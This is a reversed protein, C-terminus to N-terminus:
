LQQSHWEKNNLTSNCLFVGRFKVTLWMISTVDWIVRKLNLLKNIWRKYLLSMLDSLGGVVVDSGPSEWITWGRSKQLLTEAQISSQWCLVFRPPCGRHIDDFLTDHNLLSSQIICGYKIISITWYKLTFLYSLNAKKILYKMMGRM